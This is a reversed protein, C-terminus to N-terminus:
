AGVTNDVPNDDRLAVADPRIEIDLYTPSEVLVLAHPDEDESESAEWDTVPLMSSAASPRPRQRPILAAGGVGGSNGWGDVVFNNTDVGITRVEKDVGASPPVTEAAAEGRVSSSAEAALEKVRTNTSPGSSPHHHHHHHHTIVLKKVTRIKLNVM